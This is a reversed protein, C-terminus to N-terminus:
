PDLLSVQINHASHRCFDIPDQRFVGGRAFFVAVQMANREHYPTSLTLIALCPRKKCQMHSNFLILLCLEKNLHLLFTSNRNQYEMCPPNLITEQM